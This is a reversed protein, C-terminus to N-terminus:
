APGPPHAAADVPGDGVKAACRDRLGGLRKATPADGDRAAIGALTDWADAAVQWRSRRMAERAAWTLWEAAADACRPHALAARGLELAFRPDATGSEADAEMALQAFAVATSAAGAGAAWASLRLASAAIAAIEPPAPAPQRVLSLLTTLTDGIEPVAVAFESAGTALRRRNERLDVTEGDMIEIWADLDRAAEVVAYAGTGLQPELEDLVFGYGCKGGPGGARVPGPEVSGILKM